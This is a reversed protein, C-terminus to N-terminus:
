FLAPKGRKRLFLTDNTPKTSVPYNCLIWERETLIYHKGFKKNQNRRKPSEVVGSCTPDIGCDMKAKVKMDYKRNREPLCTTKPIEEYLDPAVISFIPLYAYFENFLNQQSTKQM